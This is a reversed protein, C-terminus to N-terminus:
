TVRGLAALLAARCIVLPATDATAEYPRGELAIECWWDSSDHIQLCDLKFLSAKEVVQWAAAIDTSYPPVDLECRATGPLHWFDVGDHKFTRREWGMVSETVLEDMELGAEMNLIEDNTM